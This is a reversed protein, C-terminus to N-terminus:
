YSIGKLVWADKGTPDQRSSYKSKNNVGWYKNALQQGKKSKSKVTKAPKSKRDGNSLYNLVGSAKKKAEEVEKFNTEYIWIAISCAFIVDDNYGRQHDARGNVWIFTKLENLLRVSRVKLDDGEVWNIFKSIIQPRKNGIKIGAVRTQPDDANKSYYLLGYELRELELVVIDGYGGTTDVITYSSYILGHKYVIKALAEPRLKGKFELVLEGTDVDIVVIASYDDSNGASPDVGMIYRHGEIPEQFIWLRDEIEVKALPNTVSNEEHYTISDQEVVTGASGEFKVDLERAIRKKDYLLSACMERYWSSTPKYGDNEFKEYSEFTYLEEPVLIEKGVEDTKVWELDNNFRPDHYWKLEIVNFPAEGDIAGQYVKYYLLDQGNPTSILIMKGGTILSSMAAAYLESGHEIYAAEDVVLITPTYGRLADTSTAVAVVESGNVLTLKITSGKGVIHGDKDKSYDYDDGWMWAPIQSLFNRIKSLFEKALNLKNALVMIKEKKNKDAYAIIVAIWAATTTSIGAQRPKTVINHRHNQYGYIVDKQRPFLRYPVEGGQYLDNVKFYTEIILAPNTMGKAYLELKEDVTMPYDVQVM